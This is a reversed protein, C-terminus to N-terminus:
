VGTLKALWSAAGIAYFASSIGADHLQPAFHSAFPLLCGLAAALETCTSSGPRVIGAGADRQVRFLMTSNTANGLWCNQLEGDQPFDDAYPSGNLNRRLAYSPL